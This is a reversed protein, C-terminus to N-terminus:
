ALCVAPINNDKTKRKEPQPLLSLLSSTACFGGGGGGGGVLPNSARGLLVVQMAGSRAVPLTVM